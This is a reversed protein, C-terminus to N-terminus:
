RESDVEAREVQHVVYKRYIEEAPLHASDSDQAFQAIDNIQADDWERAPQPNQPGHTPITALWQRLKEETGKRGRLAEGGWTSFHGNNHGNSVVTGLDGLVPPWLEPTSRSQPLPGMTMSPRLPQVGPNSSLRPTYWPSVLRPSPGVTPAVGPPPAGSTGAHDTVVHVRVERQLDKVLRPVTLVHQPLGPGGAVRPTGIVM